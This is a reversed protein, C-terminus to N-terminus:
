KLHEELLKLQKKSLNLEALVNRFSSTLYGTVFAYNVEGKNFDSSAQEATTKLHDIVTELLIPNSM